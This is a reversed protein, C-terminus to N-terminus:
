GGRKSLRDRRISNTLGLGCFIFALLVLFWGGLSIAYVSLAVALISLVVITCTMLVFV